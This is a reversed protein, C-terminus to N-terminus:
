LVNLEWPVFPINEGACFDHRWTLSSLETDRWRHIGDTIFIRSWRKSCCITIANKFSARLICVEAYIPNTNKWRQFRLVLTVAKRSRSHSSRFSRVDTVPRVKLEGTLNYGWWYTYIFEWRKRRNFARITKLGSNDARSRIVNSDLQTNFNTIHSNDVSRVCCVRPSELFTEAEGRSRLKNSVWCYICDIWGHGLIEVSFERSTPRHRNFIQHGVRALGKLFKEPLQPGM